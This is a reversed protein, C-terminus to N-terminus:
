SDLRAAEKFPLSCPKFSPMPIVELVAIIQLMKLM